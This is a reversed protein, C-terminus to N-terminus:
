KWEITKKLVESGTRNAVTVVITGPGAGLRAIFDAQDVLIPIEIVHVSESRAEIERELLSVDSSTKKEWVLAKGSDRVEVTVDFTTQFRGGESKFWILRFPIEIRVLGEIRNEQRVTVKAEATFDLFPHAGGFLRGMPGGLVGPERLKDLSLDRIPGLDFTALRYSGSCTPDDFLLPFNGYFWAEQCRKFSEGQPNIRRESPPGYLVFIRGRDTL